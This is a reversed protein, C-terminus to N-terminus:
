EEGTWGTRLLEKVRRVADWFAPTDEDITSRPRPLDIPVVGAILGPRPSMVVVEDSLAVAEEVSHTVFVVTKRYHEWLRLLQVRASERTLEDLASFPEDMLLLPAGQVFGRAISARQMMGGSLQSPRSDLFDGLGLEGLVEDADLPARATTRSRDARRNVRDSLTANSRISDWPLLASSQPIWGINKKKAAVAPADGFLSVAGADAVELGAIIRLLTSKGCGSPGFLTVFHGPRVTLDVNQLAVFEGRRTRFTKRVGTVAVGAPAADTPDIAAAGAASQKSM